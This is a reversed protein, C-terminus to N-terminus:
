ALEWQQYANNLHCNNFELWFGSSAPNQQGSDLCISPDEHNQFLFVNNYVFDADWLVRPNGACSMLYTEGSVPFMGGAQNYHELCTGTAVNQIENYGDDPIINWQAAADGCSGLTVENGNTRLCTNKQANYMIVHSRSIQQAHATGDVAMVAALSAALALAVKIRSKM